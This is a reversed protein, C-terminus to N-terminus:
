RNHVPSIRDPNRNRREAVPQQEPATKRWPGDGVLLPAGRPGQGVADRGPRLRALAPVPQPARLGMDRSSGIPPRQPRACPLRGHRGGGAHKAAGRLGEARWLRAPAGDRTHDAILRPRIPFRLQAGGDDVRPTGLRPAPADAPAVGACLHLPRGRRRCGDFVVLGQGISSVRRRAAADAPRAAGQACALLDDPHLDATRAHVLRCLARPRAMGPQRGHRAFGASQGPNPRDLAIRRTLADGQLQHRVPGRFSLVQEKLAAYDAAPLFDPKLIFGDREFAARDEECVLSSLRQRRWEAM